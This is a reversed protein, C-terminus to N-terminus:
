IVPYRLRYSRSLYLETLITVLRAYPTPKFNTCQGIIAGCVVDSIHHRGLLVRSVCVTLLWMVILQDFPFGLPFETLLFM